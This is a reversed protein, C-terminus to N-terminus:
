GLRTSLHGSTIPLSRGGTQLVDSIHYVPFPHLDVFSLQGSSSAIRELRRHELRQEFAQRLVESHAKAVGHPLLSRPPNDQLRIIPHGIVSHRMPPQVHTCSVDGRRVPLFERGEQHLLCDGREAAPRLVQVRKRVVRRCQHAFRQELRVDLVAIGKDRRLRWRGLREPKRWLHMASEQLRARDDRRGVGQVRRCRGRVFM